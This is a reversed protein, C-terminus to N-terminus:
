SCSQRCHWLYTVYCQNSLCDCDYKLHIRFVVGFPKVFRTSLVTHCSPRSASSWLLTLVLILFHGLPDGMPLLLLSSYSSRGECWWVVLSHRRSPRTSRGELVLPIKIKKWSSIIFIFIAGSTFPFRRGSSCPPIPILPHRASAVAFPYKTAMSAVQKLFHGRMIQFNTWSPVLVQEWLVDCGLFRVM